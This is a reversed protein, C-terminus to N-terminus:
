KKIERLAWVLRQPLNKLSWVMGFVPAKLITVVKLYLEERSPLKALEILEKKDLLTEQYFGALVELNQAEKKFKDITKLVELFDKESASVLALSGELKQPNLDIGLKEMLIRALTKKIAKIKAGKKRLLFRLKFFQSSNLGFFNFYLFNRSSKLEELLSNLIKEKEKRLKAM